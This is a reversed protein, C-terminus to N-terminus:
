QEDKPESVHLVEYGQACDTAPQAEAAAEANHWLSYRLLEWRDADLAVVHLYLGPLHALAQQNALEAKKLQALPQAPDVPDIERLAFNPQIGRDGYQTGLVLWSRVRHRSFAETVGKFLDDLLFNRAEAVDDWLYFPAYLHDKESYIFSKHTLGAHDDFLAHRNQVRSRVMEANYDVPLSISYQMALLPM